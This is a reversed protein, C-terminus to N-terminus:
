RGKYVEKSKLSKILATNNKSEKHTSKNKVVKKLNTVYQFGSIGAELDVVLDRVVNKNPQTTFNLGKNQFKLENDNLQQTSM